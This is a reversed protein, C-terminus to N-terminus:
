VKKDHADFLSSLVEKAREHRVAIVIYEGEDTEVIIERYKWFQFLMLILRIM